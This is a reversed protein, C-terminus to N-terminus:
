SGKSESALLENVRHAYQEFGSKLAQLEEYEVGWGQALQQANVNYYYLDQLAHFVEVDHANPVAQSYIHCKDSWDGLFFAYMDNYEKTSTQM